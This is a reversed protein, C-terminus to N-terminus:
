PRLLDSLRAQRPTLHAWDGDIDFAALMCTPFGQTLGPAASLGLALQHVGPNHGVLLVSAASGGHERLTDLLGAASALYLSDELVLRADLGLLGFTERTRRATSVLAVQPLLARARLQRGLGLAEDRGRESLARDHDAADSQNPQATVAKAHRLLLLRATM